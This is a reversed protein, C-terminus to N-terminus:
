EGGNTQGDQATTCLPATVDYFRKPLELLATQRAFELASYFQQADASGHTKVAPKKLGVVLAGANNKYDFTHKLRKIIGLSFLGALRNKQFGKKLVRSMALLSGELAKLVLNGGYGESVLVDLGGSILGRPEVYGLYNFSKDQQMLVHADHHYSFGKHAETGINMLGVRPHAIKRITKAVESAMLALGYLETGSFETAAGVDLFYFGREDATPM